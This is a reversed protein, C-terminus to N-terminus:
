LFSYTFLSESECFMRIIFNKKCFSSNKKKNKKICSYLGNCKYEWFVKRLLTEKSLVYSPDSNSFNINKSIM